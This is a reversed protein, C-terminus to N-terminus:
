FQVHASSTSTGGTWDWENEPITDSWYMGKSGKGGKGGESDSGKGTSKGNTWSHGRKQSWGKGPSEGQWWPSWAYTNGKVASYEWQKAKEKGEKRQWKKMRREANLSRTDLNVATTANGLFGGKRLANPEATDDSQEAGVVNSHQLTSGMADVHEGNIQSKQLADLEM